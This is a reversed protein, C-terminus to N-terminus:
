YCSFEATVQIFSIENPTTADTVKWESTRDLERYGYFRCSEKANLYTSETASVIAVDRKAADSYVVISSYTDTHGAFAISSFLMLSIFSFLSKM